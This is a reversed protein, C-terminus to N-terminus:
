SQGWVNIYVSGAVPSGSSLSGSLSLIQREEQPPPSLLPCISNSTAIAVGEHDGRWSLTPLSMSLLPPPSPFLSFSMRGVLFSGWQIPSVSHTENPLISRDRRARDISGRRQNEQSSFSLCVCFHLLTTTLNSTDTFKMETRKRSSRESAIAVIDRCRLSLSLSLPQTEKLSTEGSSEGAPFRSLQADWAPLLDKRIRIPRVHARTYGIWTRTNDPSSRMCTSRRPSFLLLIYTCAYSCTRALVSRRLERPSAARAVPGYILSRKKRASRKGDGDPWLPGQRRNQEATTKRNQSTRFPKTAESYKKKKKRSATGRGNWRSVDRHVARSPFFM